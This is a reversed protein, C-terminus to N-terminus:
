VLYVLLLWKRQRRVYVRLGEGLARTELAKAGDSEGTDNATSRAGGRQIGRLIMTIFIICAMQLITNLIIMPLLLLEHTDIHIHCSRANVRIVSRHQCGHLVVALHVM